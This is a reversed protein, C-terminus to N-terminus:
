FIRNSMRVIRYLKRYLLLRDATDRTVGVSKTKRHQLWDPRTILKNIAANDLCGTSKVGSFRSQECATSDSCLSGDSQPQSYVTAWVWEQYMELSSLWHQSLAFRRGSHHPWWPSLVARAYLSRSWSKSVSCRSGLGLPEIALHNACKYNSSPVGTRNEPRASNWQTAVKPLNHVWM